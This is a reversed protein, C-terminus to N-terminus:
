QYEECYWTGSDPKPLSCSECNECNSCLGEFQNVEEANVSSSEEFDQNTSNFYDIRNEVTYDSNDFQECYWVPENHRKRYFCSLINNCTSCLGIVSAYIM